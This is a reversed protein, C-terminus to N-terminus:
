PTLSAQSRIKIGPLSSSSVIPLRMWFPVLFPPFFLMQPASLSFSFSIWTRNQSFLFFFRTRILLHISSCSSCWFVSYGHIESQLPPPNGLISPIRPDSLSWLVQFLSLLFFWLISYNYLSSSYASLSDPYFLWVVVQIGLRLFLVFTNLDRGDRTHMKLRRWTGKGRMQNYEAEERKTKKVAQGQRQTLDGEGEQRRKETGLLCVNKAHHMELYLMTFTIWNSSWGTRCTSRQTVLNHIAIQIWASITRWDGDEPLSSRASFFDESQKDKTLLIRGLQPRTLAVEWWNVTLM